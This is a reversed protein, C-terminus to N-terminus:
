SARFTHWHCCRHWANVLLCTLLCLAFLCCVCSVCLRVFMLDVLATNKCWSCCRKSPQLIPFHEGFRVGHPGLLRIAPALRGCQGSSPRAGCCSCGGLECMCAGHLVPSGAPGPLYMRPVYKLCSRLACYPTSHSFAATILNETKDLLIVSGLKFCVTSHVSM